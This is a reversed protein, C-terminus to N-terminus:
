QEESTICDMLKRDKRQETVLAGNRAPAHSLAACSRRLWSMEVVGYCRVAVSYSKSQGYIGCSRGRVM